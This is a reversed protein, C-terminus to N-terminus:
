DKFSNKITDGVRLSQVVLCHAAVGEVDLQMFAQIDRVHHVAGGGGGPYIGLLLGGKM